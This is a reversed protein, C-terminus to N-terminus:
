LKFDWPICIQGDSMVSYYNTIYLRNQRLSSLEDRHELLRQLCSTMLDPTVCDDKNLAELKLEALCQKHLEKEIHKHSRYHHLLRSANDLNESIFNVLLFSPCSAPVIFQGTPSVMLPGAETEVVLEFNELSDPWTKPFGRRGQHDGLSTTLRNLNKEYEAAMTKPQYKRRVVRIDRLVRSAAKEFAPLRLLVKDEKPLNKIFDLWHQRVEGSNLLVQGKMSVGTDRSFVLSRGKLVAMHEPHQQALSLFSMLCGRFHAINWGCDSTVDALGLSRCAQDQLKSVEERVPGVSALKERAEAENEDLWGTLTQFEKPPKPKREPRKIRSNDTYDYENYKKNTRQTYHYVQDRFSPRTTEPSKSAIKDVYTTPLNCTSLIVTLTKSLDQEKLSINVSKLSERSTAVGQPKLYFRLTVPRQPKKQQLSELVSSLTKLSNENVAREQPFQGFLDPHVTFYFPRLATSVEGSTMHRCVSRMYGYGWIDPSLWQKARRCLIETAM